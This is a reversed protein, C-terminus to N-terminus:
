AVKSDKEIVGLGMNLMRLRGMIRERDAKAMEEAKARAKEVEREKEAKRDEKEFRRKWLGVYNTHSQRIWAHWWMERAWNILVADTAGAHTADTWNIEFDKDRPSSLLYPTGNLPDFLTWRALCVLKRDLAMRTPPPHPYCPREPTRPLPDIYLPVDWSEAPQSSFTAPM